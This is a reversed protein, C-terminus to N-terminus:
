AAGAKIVIFEEINDLELTFPEEPKLKARNKNKPKVKTEQKRSLSKSYEKLLPSAQEVTMRALEDIKQGRQYLRNAFQTVEYYGEKRSYDLYQRLKGIKSIFSIAGLEATIERLQHIKNAIEKNKLRYFQPNTLYHLYHATEHATETQLKCILKKLNAPTASFTTNTADIEIVPKRNDEYTKFYSTYRAGMIIQIPSPRNPLGFEPYMIEIFKRHTKEPVKDLLHEIM